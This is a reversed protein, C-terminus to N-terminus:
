PIEPTEFAIPSRQVPSRPSDSPEPLLEMYNEMIAFCRDSTGEIKWFIRRSALMQGLNESGIVIWEEGTVRQGANGFERFGYPFQVNLNLARMGRSGITLHVNRVLFFELQKSGEVEYTTILPEEGDGILMFLSFVGYIKVTEGTITLIRKDTSRVTSLYNLVSENEAPFLNIQTESDFVINIRMRNVYGLMQPKRCEAQMDILNAFYNM